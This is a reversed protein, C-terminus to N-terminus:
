YKIMETEIPSEDKKSKGGTMDWYRATGVSVKILRVKPDEPEAGDFWHKLEPYWLEKKKKDDDVMKATGALSVYNEDISYAINVDSNAEVEEIVDADSSVFFWVDGDFEPKQTTMPRSVLGGDKGHTVFMTTKHNSLLKVIKKSKEQKTAM